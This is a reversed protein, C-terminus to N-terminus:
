HNKFTNRPQSGVAKVIGGGGANITSVIYGHAFTEAGITGQGGVSMGTVAIGPGFPITTVGLASPTLGAVEYGSCNPSNFFTLRNGSGPTGLSYVNVVVDTVIVTKGSPPAVIPECADQIGTVTESFLNSPATTETLLRGATDVRAENNTDPDAIVTATATKAGSSSADQAMASTGVLLGIGAAIGLLPGRVRDNM